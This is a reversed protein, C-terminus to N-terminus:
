VYFAEPKLRGFVCSLLPRNNEDPFDFQVFWQDYILRAIKELKANIKENLAVKNDLNRLTSAIDKQVALDPLEIKINNYAGQTMSPLTSGSDLNLLNVANLYHYLFYADAQTKDVAAAYITDVNWFKGKHYYINGLSGKRPLLIVENDVLPKDTYGMIGGSGYVPIAGTEAISGYNRGNYIKILEGLKITKM